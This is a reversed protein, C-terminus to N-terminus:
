DETLKFTAKEHIVESYPSFELNPTFIIILKAHILCERTDRKSGLCFLKFLGSTYESFQTNQFISHKSFLTLSKSKEYFVVVVVVVYMSCSQCLESYMRRQLRSGM